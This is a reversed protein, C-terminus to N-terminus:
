RKLYNLYVKSCLENVHNRPCSPIPVQTLTEELDGGDATPTEEYSPSARELIIQFSPPLNVYQNGLVRFALLLVCETM